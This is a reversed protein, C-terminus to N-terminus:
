SMLHTLDYKIPVVSPGQYMKVYPRHPLGSQGEVKGPM